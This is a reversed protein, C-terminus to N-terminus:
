VNKIRNASKKHRAHKQLVETKGSYLLLKRDPM